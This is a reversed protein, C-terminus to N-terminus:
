PKPLQENFDDVLKKDAPQERARIEIVARNKKVVINPVVLINRNAESSDMSPIRDSSLESFSGSLM